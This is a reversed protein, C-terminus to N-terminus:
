GTIRYWLASADAGNSSVIDFSMGAVINEVSLHGAAIQNRPGVAIRSNATVRTDPVTVTGGALTAFGTASINQWTRASTGRGAMYLSFGDVLSTSIEEWVLSGGVFLQAPTPALTTRDDPELITATPHRSTSIM